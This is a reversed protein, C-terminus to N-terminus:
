LNIIEEEVTTVPEVSPMPLAYEFSSAVLPTFKIRM